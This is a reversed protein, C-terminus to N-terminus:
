SAVCRFIIRTHKKKKKKKKAEVNLAVLTWVFPEGAVTSIGYLPPAMVSRIDPDAFWDDSFCAATDDNVVDL